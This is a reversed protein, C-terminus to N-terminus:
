KEPEKKWRAAARKKADASREARTLLATGNPSKIRDDRHGIGYFRDNKM